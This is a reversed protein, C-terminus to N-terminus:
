VGWGSVRMMVDWLALVFEVRAYSALALLIWGTAVGMLPVGLRRLHAHVAPAEDRVLSTMVVGADYELTHTRPMFYPALVSGVLFALANFTDNKSEHMVLFIVVTYIHMGTQDGLEPYAAVFARLIHRCSMRRARLVERECPSSASDCAILRALDKEMTKINHDWEQQFLARKDLSMAHM